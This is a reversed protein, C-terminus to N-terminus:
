FYLEARRTANPEAMCPHPSGDGLNGINPVSNDDGMVGEHAGTVPNDGCPLWRLTNPALWGGLQTSAVNVINAKFYEGGLNLSYRAVQDALRQRNENTATRQEFLAVGTSGLVIVTLIVLIVLAVMLTAVGNQRNPSPGRNVAANRISHTM